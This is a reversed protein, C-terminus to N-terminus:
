CKLQAESDHCVAEVDVSMSGVQENECGGM